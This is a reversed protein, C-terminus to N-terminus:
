PSLPYKEMYAQTQFITFIPIIILGNVAVMLYKAFEYPIVAFVLLEIISIAILAMVAWFLVMKWKLRLMGISAGVARFTDLEDIVVAPPVFFICAFVVFSALPYIVSHFGSDFTAINIAFLLLVAMTFIFFIKVAYKMIGGFIEKPVKSVTRNAKIILNINTLADAFVFLSILYSIAIIAIELLSMVPISGTSIYNGGLSIYTATPGLFLPLMSIVFMASLMSILWMNRRYEKFTYSVIKRIGM